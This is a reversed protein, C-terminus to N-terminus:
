NELKFSGEKKSGQKVKKKKAQHNHSQSVQALVPRTNFVNVRCTFRDSFLNEKWMLCVLEVGVIWVIRPPM